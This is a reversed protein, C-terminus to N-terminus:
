KKQPYWSAERSEHFSALGESAEKTQRKRAHDQALNLFREDDTGLETIEFLIRKTDAISKPGNRLISEIIPKAYDNLKGEDCVENVLGFNQAQLSGFKEGTIAFRRLKKVGMAASLQPLIPGAHLGWRVESISFIADKSAVVIDCAAVLGTGGGFCAGHVLAITPKPCSDLFRVANTILKSISLNDESSQSSVRLIWNLDAGTQFHQGNGRILIVRVSDDLSLGALGRILEELMDSNYANNVEPRNLTVSAIGRNDIEILVSSNPM